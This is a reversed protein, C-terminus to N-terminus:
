GGGRPVPRDRGPARAPPQHHAPARRAGFDPPGQGAQEELLDLDDARGHARVRLEVLHGPHDRGTQGHLHVLHEVPGVVRGGQLPQAAALLQALDDEAVLGSGGSGRGGMRAGACRGWPPIQRGEGAGAVQPLGSRVVAGRPPFTAAPGWSAHRRMSGDGRLSALARRAASISRRASRSSSTDCWIWAWGSSLKSSRNAWSSSVRTSSPSPRATVREARPTSVAKSAPAPASPGVTATTHSYSARGPMPCAQPCLMMAAAPRPAPSAAAARARSSPPRTRTTPLGASSPPPPLTGSMAPPVNSSTSAATITWGASASRRAM